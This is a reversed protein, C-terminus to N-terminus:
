VYKPAHVNIEVVTQQSGQHNYVDLSGIGLGLVHLIIEIDRSLHTCVMPTNGPNRAVMHEHIMAESPETASAHTLQPDVNHSILQHRSCQGIVVRELHQPDLTASDM